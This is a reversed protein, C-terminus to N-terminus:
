GRLVPSAQRGYTKSTDSKSVGSCAAIGPAASNSRALHKRRTRAKRMPATWPWAPSMSRRAIHGTQEVVVHRAHPSAEDGSPQANEKRAQRGSTDLPACESNCTLQRVLRLIRFEVHDEDRHTM